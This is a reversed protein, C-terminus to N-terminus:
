AAARTGRLTLFGNAPSGSTSSIVATIVDGASFTNAGSASTSATTASNVTVASLGTVNTGNIKIAVSFSGSADGVNYTLASITGAYPAYGVLTITGDEVVAGQAWPLTVAWPFTSHLKVGDDYLATANITGTGQQGGTPSGVTVYGSPTLNTFTQAPADLADASLDAVDLGNIQVTKAVVAAVQAMLERIANNVNGADCGEAISIGGIDTNSAATASWDNVTDKTM